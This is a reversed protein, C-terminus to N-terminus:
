YLILFSKYFVKVMVQIFLALIDQCTKFHHTTCKGEREEAKLFSYKYYVAHMVQIFVMIMEAIQFKNFHM